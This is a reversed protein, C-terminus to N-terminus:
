GSLGSWPSSLTITLSPANPYGEVVAPVGSAAAKSRAYPSAAGVLALSGMDRSASRQPFGPPHCFLATLAVKGFDSALDISEM